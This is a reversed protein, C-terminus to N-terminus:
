LFQWEVQHHLWIYWSCNNGFCCETNFSEIFDCCKWLVTFPVTAEHHLGHASHVEKM